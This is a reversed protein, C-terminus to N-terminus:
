LCSNLKLHLKYTSHCCHSQQITLLLKDIVHIGDVMLSVTHWIGTTTLLEKLVTFWPRQTYSCLSQYVLGHTKTSHICKATTSNWRLETAEIDSFREVPELLSIGNPGGDLDVRNPFARIKGDQIQWVVNM